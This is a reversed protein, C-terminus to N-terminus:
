GHRRETLKKAGGRELQRQDIQGNKREEGSKQEAIKREVRATEDVLLDGVGDVGLDATKGILITEAADGAQHKHDVAARAAGAGAQIQHRRRVSLREGA